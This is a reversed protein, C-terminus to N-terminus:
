GNCAVALRASSYAPTMEVYEIVETVEGTPIVYQLSDVAATRLLKCNSARPGASLPIIRSVPLRSDAIGRQGMSATHHVTIIAFVFYRDEFGRECPLSDLLLSPNFIVVIAVAFM